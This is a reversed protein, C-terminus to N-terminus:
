EDNVEMWSIATKKNLEDKLDIWYQPSEMYRTFEKPAFYEKPVAMSNMIRNLITDQFELYGKLQNPILPMQITERM